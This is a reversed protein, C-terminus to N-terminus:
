ARLELTLCKVGGGSKHFETIPTAIPNFGHDKLQQHLDEAENSLVVNNNYSVANLGFREADRPSAEIVTKFHSRIAKQSDDDFAGPFFMVTDDDLPCFCTDLHYFHPNILKLSIVPKAFFAKLEAHAKLDSRFGHGAFLTDGAFLCDGEGEFNHEPMQIETYGNLKFWREFEPTEGRREQNLFRPLMVKSDIVLGGNATFVMDPLGGVPDIREVAIGLAIYIDHIQLWQREALERDVHNEKHMWPNIEYEIDFFDPRCMLVKKSM